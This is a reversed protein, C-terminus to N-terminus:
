TLATWSSWNGTMVPRGTQGPTGDRTFTRYRYRFRFQSGSPGIGAYSFAGGAPVEQWDSIVRYRWAGNDYEYEIQIQDADVDQTAAAATVAHPGTSVISASANDRADFTINTNGNTTGNIRGEYYRTATVSTVSISGGFSLQYEEMQNSSADIIAWVRYYKTTDTSTPSTTQTAPTVTYITSVKSIGPAAFSDSKDYQDGTETGGPILVVEEVTGSALVGYVTETSFERIIDVKVFYEKSPVELTFLSSVARKGFPSDTFTTVLEDVTDPTGNAYGDTFVQFNVSVLRDNPDEDELWELKYDGIQSKVDADVHVSYSQQSNGNVNSFNGVMHIRGDVRIVERVTGDPDPDWARPSLSDLDHISLRNRPSTFSGGFVVVDDGTEADEFIAIDEVINNHNPDWSADVNGDLDVRGSYQISGSGGLSTYDGGLYIWDGHIAITRIVDDADPDWDLVANRAQKPDVGHAIDTDIVTAVGRGRVLPISVLVSTLDGVSYLVGDKIAMDYITSASSDLDYPEISWDSLKYKVLPSNTSNLFTGGAFLYTGDTELARVVASANGPDLDAVFNGDRDVVGISNATNGDIQTFDGGIIIYDGVVLLARCEKTGSLQPKWNTIPEGFADVHAVGTYGSESGVSTFSGGIYCGGNGDPYIALGGVPIGSLESATSLADDSVLDFITERINSRAFISDGDNHAIPSTSNYGREVSSLTVNSLPTYAGWSGCLMRESGAELELETSAGGPRRFKVGFSTDLPNVDEGIENYAWSILM